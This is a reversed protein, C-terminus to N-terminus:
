EGGGSHYSANTSSSNMLDVVTQRYSEQFRTAEDNDYGFNAKAYLVVAMKALPSMSEESLASEDIGVRKMDAIAAAIVMDVEADLKGSSTRLCIKVDDRLSM